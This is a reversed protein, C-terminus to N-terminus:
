KSYEGYSSFEYNTYPEAINSFGAVTNGSVVCQADTDSWTTGTACCASGACYGGYLSTSGSDTTTSSTTTNGSTPTSLALKDFDMTDRKNIQIMLLWIIIIAIAFDAAKLLGIVFGPIMPVNKELLLLGLYILLGNLDAESENNIDQNVYFHSYEHLLIAM